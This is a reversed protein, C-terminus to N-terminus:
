AFIAYTFLFGFYLVVFGLTAQLQFKRLRRTEEARAEQVARREDASLEYDHERGEHLRLIRETPFPKGCYSCAPPSDTSPVDADMM